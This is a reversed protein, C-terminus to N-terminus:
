KPPWGTCASCGAAYGSPDPLKGPQTVMTSEIFGSQSPGQQGPQM